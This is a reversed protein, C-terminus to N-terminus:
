LDPAPPLEMDFWKGERMAGVFALCHIVLDRGSKTILGSSHVAAVAGALSNGSTRFDDLLVVHGGQRRWDVSVRRVRLSDAVEAATNLDVSDGRHIGNHLSRQSPLSLQRTLGRSGDVNGSALAARRAVERIGTKTPTKPDASHPPMAMIATSQNPSLLGCITEAWFDVWVSWAPGDPHPLVDRLTSWPRPLRNQFQANRFKIYGQPTVSNEPDNGTAVPHFCRRSDSVLAAM